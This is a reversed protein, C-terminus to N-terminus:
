STLLFLHIPVFLIEGDETKKTELLDKTVVIGRKVKYKRMFERLGDIKSPDERYKVEVPLLGDGTHVIFDCEHSNSWYFIGPYKRRLHLFVLNEVLSGEGVGAIVARILGTDIAYTKRDKRISGKLSGSYYKVEFFMFSKQLLKAYEIVTDTTIGLVGALSTHNFKQGSNKMLYAALNEVSAVDRVEFVRIIDRYIIDRFYQALLIQRGEGDLGFAAPYGGGNLYREFFIRLRGAQSVFFLSRLDAERLGGLEPTVAEVSSFQLFEAFSLPFVMFDVQRGTLKKLSAKELLIASSGSVVFKLNPYLEYYHKLWSDWNEADQIEDLFFYLRDKSLDKGMLASYEELVAKFFGSTDAKGAAVGRKGEAYALLLEADDMQVYLVTKPDVGKKLVDGILQRMITTKGSRRVGTIKLIERAELFAGMRSIYHERRIGTGPVTGSVWWPNLRALAERM